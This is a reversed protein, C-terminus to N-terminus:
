KPFSRGALGLTVPCSRRSAPMEIEISQPPGKDSENVSPIMPGAVIGEVASLLKPKSIPKSLHCQCGAKISLEIDQPYANATLAIIPIAPGRREQELARIARTASLGDMIPMQMDMLIVDFNGAAFRDVAASGNEAFTLQHPSGKFYMQLLLRNDVSDEAILIRLPKVPTEKDNWREPNSPPNGKGPLTAKLL